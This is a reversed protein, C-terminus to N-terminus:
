KFFTGKLNVCIIPSKKSFRGIQQDERFSQINWGKNSLHNNGLSQWPHSLDGKLHDVPVSAPLKSGETLGFSLCLVLAFRIVTQMLIEPCHKLHLRTSYEAVVAIMCVYDQVLRSLALKEFHELLFNTFPVLNVKM